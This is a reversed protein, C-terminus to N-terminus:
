RENQKITATAKPPLGKLLEIEDDSSDFPNSNDKQAAKEDVAAAEEEDDGFPNLDTPYEVSKSLRRTDTPETAAEPAASRNKRRMPTPPLPSEKTTRKMPVPKVSDNEESVESPGEKAEDEVPPETNEDDGGSQETVDEQENLPELSQAKPAFDAREHQVLAEFQSLRSQIISSREGGGPVGNRDSDIAENDSTSGVNTAASRLEVSTDDDHRSQDDDKTVDTSGNAADSPKDDFDISPREEASREAPPKLAEFTETTSDSSNASIPLSSTAETSHSDNENSQQRSENVNGAVCIDPPLLKAERPRGYIKSLANAKPPPLPKIATQRREPKPAPEGDLPPPATSPLPPKEDEDDSDSSESSSSERDSHSENERIISQPEEHPPPSQGYIEGLRKLSQTKEEDSLAKKLFGKDNKQFMLLKENFSTRMESTFLGKDVDDRGGIKQIKKEEDPCTECCYVGDAETEYFSGLALQSDCRACRLCKRHYFSKGVAIREALFVPLDCKQCRERRPVGVVPVM